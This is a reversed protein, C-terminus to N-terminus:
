RPKGPQGTQVLAVAELHLRTAEAILHGRRKGNIPKSAEQFLRDVESRLM